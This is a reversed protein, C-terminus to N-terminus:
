ERREAETGQRADFVVGHTHTEADWDDEPHRTPAEPDLIMEEYEVEEDDDDHSRKVRKVKKNSKNGSSKKNIQRKMGSFTGEGPARPIRIIEKMVLAGRGLERKPDAEFEDEGAEDEDDDEGDKTPSKSKSKGKSSPLSPRGYVVRENRWFELPAIRHRGGRRLGEENFGDQYIEGRQYASPVREVVERHIQEQNTGPKTKTTRKQVELPAMTNGNGNSTSSTEKGKGKKSSSAAKSTSSKTKTKGNSTSSSKAKTQKKSAAAKEKKGATTRELAEEGVDIEIFQEIQMPEQHGEDDDDDVNENFSPYDDLQPMPESDSQSEERRVEEVVKKKSSTSPKKVPSVSSSKDKSKKVANKKPNKAEEEEQLKAAKRANYGASPAKAKSGSASSKKGGLQEEAEDDTGYLGADRADDGAMASLDFSRSGLNEQDEDDDEGGGRISSSRGNTKRNHSKRSSSTPPQDYDLISGDPSYPKPAISRRYATGPSLASGASSTIFIFNSNLILLDPLSIIEISDNEFPIWVDVM